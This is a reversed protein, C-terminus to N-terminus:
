LPSFNQSGDVPETFGKVQFDSARLLPVQSRNCVKASPYSLRRFFWSLVFDHHLRSPRPLRVPPELLVFFRSSKLLAGFGLRCRSPPPPGPPSPARGATVVVPTGTTRTQRRQVHALSVLHLPTQFVRGTPVHLSARASLVLTAAGGSQPFGLASPRLRQQLEM